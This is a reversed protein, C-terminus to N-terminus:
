DPPIPCTAKVPLGAFRAQLWTFALAYADPAAAVHSQGKNLVVREVVQHLGCMRVALIHSLAVPVTGDQKSHVILIPDATRVHGPTNQIALKLWIPAWDATPQYLGKSSAFAGIVQGVCGKDILPLMKLGKATLIGSPNAEPYAAQFGGVTMMVFGAAAPIAPGAKLIIDLETAPAGAFTGVVHFEPPTRPPSRTPSSPAM